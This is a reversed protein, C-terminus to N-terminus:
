NRGAGSGVSLVDATSGRFNTYSGACVSANEQAELTFFLTSFLDTGKEENDLVGATFGATLAGSAYGRLSQSSTVDKLAAGM